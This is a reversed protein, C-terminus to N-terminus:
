MAKVSEARMGHRIKWTWNGRPKSCSLVLWWFSARIRGFALCFLITRNEPPHLDNKCIPFDGRTSFRFANDSKSIRLKRYTRCWGFFNHYGNKPNSWSLFFFIIKPNKKPYYYWEFHVHTLWRVVTKVSSSSKTIASIVQKPTQGYFFLIM